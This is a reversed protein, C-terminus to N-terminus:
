CCSSQQQSVRCYQFLERSGVAVCIQRDGQRKHSGSPQPNIVEQDLDLRDYM